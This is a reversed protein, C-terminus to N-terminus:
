AIQVLRAKQCLPFPDEYLEGREIPQARDNMWAVLLAPFQKKQKSKSLLRFM